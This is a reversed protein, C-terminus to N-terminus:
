KVIEKILTFYMDQAHLITDILFLKDRSYEKLGRLYYTKYHDFIIFPTINHKICEKFMIIRGVRGNGDGFPHIREFKVHFDIIDLITIESKSNYVTLLKDLDSEVDLVKSTKFINIIGIINDETKFGGVNYKPNNEYSTNKKLIVNLKILMEKTLEKDVNDLIYDFLIFHNDVEIVDDTTNNLLKNYVSETEEESLVSGEIKNSNYSFKIQSIYYIGNKINNNKEYILIDKLGM